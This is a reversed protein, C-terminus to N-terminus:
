RTRRPRLPKGPGEWEWGWADADDLEPVRLIDSYDPPEGLADAAERRRLELLRGAREIVVVEGAAVEDLLRFWEKRAATATVTKM